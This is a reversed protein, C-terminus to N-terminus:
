SRAWLVPYKIPQNGAQYRTQYGATRQPLNQVGAGSQRIGSMPNEFEEPKPFIAM